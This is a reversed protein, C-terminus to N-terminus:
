SEHREGVTNKEAWITRSPLWQEPNVGDLTLRALAYQWPEVDGSGLVRALVIARALRDTIWKRWSLTDQWGPISEQRPPDVGWSLMGNAALSATFPVGQVADGPLQEELATAVEDLQTYTPFYAILKDPRLLGHADCGLKFAAVGHKIFLEAAASFTEPLASPHPSIYLKYTPRANDMVEPVGSRRWARWSPVEYTLFCDDLLRRLHGNAAIDLYDNIQQRGALRQAWVPSLPIANYRYLWASIQRADRTTLQQAFKLAEFAIHAIRDAPQRHPIAENCLAAYANPGTIFQGHDCYELIGDLVLAALKHPEDEAIPARGPTKLQSFFFAGSRDVTQVGLEPIESSVLLGFHDPDEALRQFAVREQTGLEAHAILRLAPNLRYIGHLIHHM